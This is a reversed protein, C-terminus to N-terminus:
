QPIIIYSAFIRPEIENWVVKYNNEDMWQHFDEVNEISVEVFMNPRNRAITEKLGMLAVMEMGEIDMKIFDVRKDAFLVDGPIINVPDFKQFPLDTKDEHFLRTSGLNDPYIEMPFGQTEMHGLAVGVYDVNVNHCYNLCLNALLMKYAVPLPEIAYIIEADFFKSFYVSHNGVNAGIDLIHAGKPCYEKMIEMERQEHFHGAKLSSQITDNPNEIIWRFNNM